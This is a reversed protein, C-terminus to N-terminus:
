SHNPGTSAQGQRLSLAVNLSHLPTTDSLRDLITVEHYAHLDVGITYRLTLL